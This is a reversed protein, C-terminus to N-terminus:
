NEQEIFRTINQNIVYTTTSVAAQSQLPGIDQYGTGIGIVGPFGAAKCAAGGGATANLTFPPASTWPVATLAVDGISTVGNYNATGNSGCANAYAPEGFVGNPGSAFGPQTIGYGGNGYLINNIYVNVNLDNHHATQNNVGDNTSNSFASNIATIQVQVGSTASIHIGYGNSDWVTNISTIFFNGSINGGDEFGANSNGHIYCGILTIWQSSAGGGDSAFIGDYWNTIETNILVLTCRLNYSDIGATNSVANGTLLCNLAILQGGNAPAIAFKTFGVQALLSLNNMVFTNNATLNIINIGATACQIVPKTGQDGHTTQYGWWTSDALNPATLATTITYTGAKQWGTQGNVQMAGLLAGPTAFAGGMNASTLTTVIAGTSRDLVWTTSTQSAIAYRGTTATTGGTSSIINVINAVDAASPTYGSVFTITSANCTAIVTSNDIVVQPSNQQSHDTGPSSITPDYGGGNNDSGGTRCDWQVGGSLAM